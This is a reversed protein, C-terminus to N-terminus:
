ACAKREKDQTGHTSAFSRFLSQAKDLTEAYEAEPNSLTTIGGGVNFRVSQKEFILTRILINSDMTGNCGILAISGCYAHRRQEELEEIIEMARIKPAGTISGGPFCAQLADLACQEESLTGRITTVLHHVDTFSEIKCFDSVTISQATCSKSLDNRLLDTIMTNEARDKESTELALANETDLQTDPHRPATGKIPKTSICRQADAHLFREPSASAIQVDGLNFYSAFPAPNIARLHLYHAYPDFAAPLDTSFQQSLNAQFIDGETIYNQVSAIRQIYTDKEFQEQWSVAPLDSMKQTRAGSLNHRLVARKMDAELENKAHTIIWAQQQAHDFALVQDYLGLAMDPMSSTSRASTPLTEQTRALDYGFLGALGGQFPPLDALQLNLYDRAALRSKATSFPDKGNQHSLHSGSSITIHHGHAEIIEIPNILIYSYRGDPHATDASDILLSYPMHAVAGFLAAADCYDYPATFIDM